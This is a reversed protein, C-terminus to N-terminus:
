PPPSAVLDAYARCSAYAANIADAERVIRGLLATLPVSLLGGAEGPNGAGGHAAAADQAGTGGSGGGCGPAHPDRLRLGPGIHSALRDTLAAVTNAHAHDKKNQADVQDRLASEAARVRATEAALRQTAQAKTKEIAARYEGAAREYGRQDIAKTTWALLGLLAALAALLAVVRAIV